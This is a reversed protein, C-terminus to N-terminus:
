YIMCLFIPEIPTHRVRDLDVDLKARVQELTYRRSRSAVKDAADELATLAAAHAAAAASPFDGDSM